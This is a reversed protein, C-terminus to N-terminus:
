ETKFHCNDNKLLTLLYPSSKAVLIATHEGSFKIALKDVFPIVHHQGYTDLTWKTELILGYVHLNLHLFFTHMDMM